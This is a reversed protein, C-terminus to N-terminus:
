PALHALDDPRDVDLSLYPDDLVTTELGLRAAEAVHRGFSGAGYSFRFGAGAPVAIVNTGDRARDPVITVSGAPLGEGLPGLGQPRVLDGHAVLVSVAGRRALQEVGAAVAGSLGLGPTWIVCAQLSEAFAAVDHDDCVVAAPLPAAARIVRAALERALAARDAAGLVPSLRLKADHFAKVPVLVANVPAM